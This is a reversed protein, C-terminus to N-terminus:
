NLILSLGISSLKWLNRLTHEDVDNINDTSRVSVGNNRLLIKMYTELTSIRQELSVRFKMVIAFVGILNILFGLLFMMTENM